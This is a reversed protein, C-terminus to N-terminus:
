CALTDILYLHKLRELLIGIEEYLETDDIDFASQLVAALVPLPAPDNKLFLLIEIAADDLLHTDGSLDNYLVYEDDWHRYQLTQGPRLRWIERDAM